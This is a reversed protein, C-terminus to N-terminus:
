LEVNGSSAKIQYKVGYFAEHKWYGILTFHFHQCYFNLKSIEFTQNMCPM